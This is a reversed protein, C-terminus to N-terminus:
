QQEKNVVRINDIEGIFSNQQDGIWQLPFVLTQIKAMTDKTGPFTQIAHELREQLVGNIYLSTGKNNGSIAIHTWTDAPVTYNFHYHYGERSFGLQGTEQQRLKVVAHPSSFIVADPQNHQAPKIDFSVTYNYGIETLPTQIRSNNDSLLLTHQPTISAHVTQLADRQNGSKDTIAATDFDYALVLSDKGTIKARMNLGPGEGVHQSNHLFTTYNSQATRGTWMKEALTQMAPFVRDHVDQATIGNGVHDNWVAFAGGRIQPHGMPFTTAGIQNPEWNEYLHRTDLYDFYYGAAPVIYLSGDPTSILDYGLRIMTAPDAYGNYWANMTVGTAKVPTNGQAHTLAGWLRVKKGFGEVYRIYHDTFARFPEAEKKAYEDTGIHVEAGKFVPKPGELYEKFVQDILQYSASDFNLHDRGYSLSATQPVAKTFALAHAPVDIEPIIRVGYDEALDQLAIFEKKTYAGDTATLGPFTENELRFASYTSDWNNGFYQKFGNDNLHIHFDNMKYYSMFKVYHRLFDMTFFKRGADLVFSRVAYKPYDRTIGQPISKHLSDQELIQLLSRTAWFAGQPHFAAITIHEGIHMLYGESGLSKEKNDLTLYIDGKAPKGRRLTYQKHGTLLRMDHLLVTAAPFLQSAYVPDIVIGTKEGVTFSGKGGYWERLAPIVFPVANDAPSANYKGPVTVALNPLEMQTSDQERQLVLYLQVTATTLPTTIRGTRDIVPLRDTGKLLLRYGTPAPPLVLQSAGKRIAPIPPITAIAQRFATSDTLQQAAAPSAWALLCSAVATRFIFKM